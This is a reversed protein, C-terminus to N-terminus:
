EGHELKPRREHLPFVGNTYTGAFLNVGSMAFFSVDNSDNLGSNIATWGTGHKTTRFIGSGTAAFLESGMVALTTILQPTLGANDAIWNIGSNTSLFVGANTGAFLNGSSVVLTTVTCRSPLGSDAAVWSVGNNTSLFVGDLFTGAFLNTDIVALAYIREDTGYNLVGTQTWDEGDNTSFFIANDSSSAFVGKISAVFADISVGSRAWNWNSGDDSSFSIGDGTGTLLNTDIVALANVGVEGFPGNTRVWQASANMGLLLIAVISGFFSLKYRIRTM